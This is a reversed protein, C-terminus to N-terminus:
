PGLKCCVQAPHLPFQAQRSYPLLVLSALDWRQSSCPAPSTTADPDEWRMAVSFSNRM